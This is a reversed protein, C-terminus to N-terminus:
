RGRLAHPRPGARGAPRGRAAAGARAGGPCGRGSGLALGIVGGLAAGVVGWVVQQARFQDVTLPEGLQDLRRRATGPGGSVAEAWRIGASMIPALLREVVGLPTAPAWAARRAPPVADRVYPALRQELTPTRRWPLRAGAILLGVAALLGVLGGVPSWRGGGVAASWVHVTDPNM